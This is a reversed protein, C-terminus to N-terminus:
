PTGTVCFIRSRRGTVSNSRVDLKANASAVATGRPITEAFRRFLGVSWTERTTARSPTDVGEKQIPSMSMMTKANWSSQSGAVFRTM